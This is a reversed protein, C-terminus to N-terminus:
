VRNPCWDCLFICSITSIRMLSTLSMRYTKNKLDVEVLASYKSTAGYIHVTNTNPKQPNIAKNVTKDLIDYEIWDWNTMARYTLRKSTKDGTYAYPKSQCCISYSNPMVCSNALFRKSWYM